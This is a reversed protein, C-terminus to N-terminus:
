ARGARIYIRRPDPQGKAVTALARERTVEAQWFSIEKLIRGADQFEIERNAIAYRKIKGGSAQYTAMAAKAADLAVEAQTRGDYAAITSLNPLITVPSEPEVTYHEAGLDVYATYTYEGATYLATTAATAVTRHKDVEVAISAISIATGSVRPILRYTLVWGASAPYDVLKTTWDWTDGVRLQEQM